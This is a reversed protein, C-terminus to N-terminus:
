GQSGQKANHKIGCAVESGKPFLCLIYFLLHNILIQQIFSYMLSHILLCLFCILQSLSNCFESQEWIEQILLSLPHLSCVTIRVLFAAGQMAWIPFTFAPGASFELFLLEQTDEGWIRKCPQYAWTFLPGLFLKEPLDSSSM